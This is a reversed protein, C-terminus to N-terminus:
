LLLDIRLRREVSRNPPRWLSGLLTKDAGWAAGVACGAERRARVHELQGAGQRSTQQAMTRAAGAFSITVVVDATSPWARQM